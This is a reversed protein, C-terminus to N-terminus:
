HASIQRKDQAYSKPYNWSHACSRERKGNRKRYFIIILHLHPKVLSVEFPDGNSKKGDLYHVIGIIKTGIEKGKEAIINAKDKLVKIQDDVSGNQGYKELYGKVQEAYAKIHIMSSRNGWVIPEYKKDKDKNAEKSKENGNLTIEKIKEIDIM